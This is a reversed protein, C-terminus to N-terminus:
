FMSRIFCTTATTTTCIYIPIRRVRVHSFVLLLLLGLTVNRRVCALAAISSDARVCIFASIIAIFIVITIVVVAVVILISTVTVTATVTVTM